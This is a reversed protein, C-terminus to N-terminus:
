SPSLRREVMDCPSARWEGDQQVLRLTIVEYAKCAISFARGLWVLRGVGGHGHRDAIRVIYGGGDEAPKLATLELEDGELVALSGTPSLTGPHAYMTIPLPPLNLERARRVVGAGRWDGLHPRLCLTFEHQGQDLWEYRQKSGIAHPEHYAYPPCRLVTLRVTSGCVDGGYKGDNLVALGAYGPGRGGEVGPLAVGRGVLPEPASLPAQEPALSPAGAARAAPSLTGADGRIRGGVDIWMQLPVEAGDVPCPFAGFPVDRWAQPEDVAVDFALKLMRWEGHWFLWNRVLIEPEGARMVLQQLWTSGQWHREVYLSAQLPGREGLRVQPAGFVGLLGEFARVGHAWTDSEDKLVQAVNWGGPGVFEVGTARERCSAIAGTAPDLRVTLHENELLPAGEGDASARAGFGDFRNGPDRALGRAFRYVRYGLPPLDARWLLRDIGREANGVAARAELVQHPVPRGEDDVLGWGWRLWRQNETWPEYEVYARQRYPFPNFVVVTSGPGQTCVRAGIARGASDALERAGMTVRGLCMVAEDAAEKIISGALTDHFQNFLLDHWLARLREGDAPRGVWLAALSAMREALLLACEAQRHARKLASNASYCGTAHYQLEDAVVPLTDAQPAIADFYAQPHGFRIEVDDREAALALLGEIQERTPGGGHNGVGFFCMTEPLHAPREALARELQPTVDAPWHCYGGSIRYALLRSGDPGQWWFAQAPLDKEHAEPRLFVYYDFGCRKLIQPLTGAHGFSDVCYAVRVDVGLAERLYRTGLLAQRVLSEGQPLNMDPQVVMGNVVHWRGARVLAQIEAFLEPSEEEIWKYVQAEGRTYHLSPYEHLRDVASRSSALAEARGEPWRWLWVPDLHAQAIMRVTPRM